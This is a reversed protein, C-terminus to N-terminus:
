WFDGTEYKWMYYANLQTSFVYFLSLLKFICSAKIIVKFKIDQVNVFWVQSVKMTVSFIVCM